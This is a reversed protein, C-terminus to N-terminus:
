RSGRKWDRFLSLLEEKAPEPVNDETLSGTAQITLQMQRLYERCGSCKTLHAEFRERQATPLAGDFYDTVLEVLERCTLADLTM